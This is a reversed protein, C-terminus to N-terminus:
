FSNKSKSSLFSLLSCIIFNSQIKINSGLEIQIPPSIKPKFTFIFHLILSPRHGFISHAAIVKHSTLASSILHREKKRKKIKNKKFLCPWNQWDLHEKQFSFCCLFAKDIQSFAFSSKWGLFIFYFFYLPEFCDFSSAHVM